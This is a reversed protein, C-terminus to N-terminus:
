EATALLSKMSERTRKLKQDIAGHQESKERIQADLHKEQEQLKAVSERLKKEQATLDDVSARREKLMNDFGGAERLLEELKSMRKFLSGFYHADRAAQILENRVVEPADDNELREM